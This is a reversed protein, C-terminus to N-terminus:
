KEEWLVEVKKRDKKKRPIVFKTCMSKFKLTLYADEFNEVSLYPLNNSWHIYTTVNLLRPGLPGHKIM